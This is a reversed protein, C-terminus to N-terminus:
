FATLQEATGPVAKGGCDYREELTSCRLRPPPLRFPVEGSIAGAVSRGRYNHRCKVDAATELSYRKNGGGCVCVCVGDSHRIVRSQSQNEGSM